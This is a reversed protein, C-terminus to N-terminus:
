APQLGASVRRRRADALVDPSLRARGEASRELQTRPAPTSVPAPATEESTSRSAVAGAIRTAPGGLSSVGSIVQQGTKTRGSIVILGGVLAIGGLGILLGGVIAKVQCSNFFNGGVLPLSIGNSSNCMMSAGGQSGDGGQASQGAFAGGGTAPSFGADNPNPGLAQNGGGVVGWALVTAESPRQPAGARKWANWAADNTWNHLGAGNNGFLDIAAKAQLDPSNGLAAPQGYRPARSPGLAGYYNIQWLGISFDGTSANNNLNNTTGGSEAIAIAAMLPAWGPDGGNRTWLDEIQHYTLTQGTTGPVTPM